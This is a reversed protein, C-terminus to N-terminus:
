RARASAGGRSMTRGGGRSFTRRSRAAILAGVLLDATVIGAADCSAVLRIATSLQATVIGSGVADAALGATPATLDATVTGTGVADAALAIGTSLDASVVGTGTADAALTTAGATLDATVTGVGAADAALAIATTLAASVVGTGTTDSSLGAGPATLDATVVGSGIADSALAIATTLDATVTGAGTTDSALAAANGALEATTAGTAVLDAALTIATTLAATTAVDGTTSSALPIATTLSASAVGTATTDSALPIATTLSGSVTGAGTLDAALDAAAAASQIVAFRRSPSRVTGAETGENIYRLAESRTLARNWFRVDLGERPINGISAYTIAVPGLVASKERNNCYLTLTNQDYTLVTSIIGRRPTVESLPFFVRTSANWANLFGIIDNSYRTIGVGNAWTADTNGFLAYFEADTRGAVTFKQLSVLTQDTFRNEGYSPFFQLRGGFPGPKGTLWHEGYGFWQPGAHKGQDQNDGLVIRARGHHLINGSLEGSGENVPAWFTLGHNLTDGQDWRKLRTSTHAAIPRRM